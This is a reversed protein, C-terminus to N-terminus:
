APAPLYPLVAQAAQRSPDTGLTQRVGALAARAQDRAEPDTLYRDLADAIPQPEADDQILEPAVERGAVLNVM